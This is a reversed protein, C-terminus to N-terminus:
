IMERWTYFLIANFAQLAMFSTLWAARHRENIVAAAWVFAPFLVSSFRGASLLGGAALPPLMNVLIFVAYALGLRRAVPWVAALAFVAGSLQLLDNSWQSTYTYLGAESLITYRETVLISLGQYSRGWAVHGEAWSLPDGTLSWIYACYLLVGIGPQAAAALSKTLYRATRRAARDEESMAKGGALWGPLWPELALVALPISLFCGNPRTLGVLLGWAGAKWWEGRRFHFFAGAAGLLFLSETYPVGFWVAFPYTALLWVALGARDEDDLLDRAFRFLYALGGLFALLAVFTGGWVYATSAGGLLRGTVRMLMPMAPFFVINQQGEASEIQESFSYGDVAIGLYWGVDWRAPLNGFENETVRWPARQNPFGIMFIALYGVFLIAPRTGALAGVATRVGRTQWAAHVRAPLDAYIPRQRALAHRVISLGVAWLLLRYPSTLAIRVGFMRARFGGSLFIVLATLALVVAIADIARAWRPLATTSSDRM